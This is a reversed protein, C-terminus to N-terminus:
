LNIILPNFTSVVKNLPMPRGVSTFMYYVAHISQIYPVSGLVMRRQGYVISRLGEGYCVTTAGAGHPQRLAGGDASRHGRRGGSSFIEGHLQRLDGRGAHVM